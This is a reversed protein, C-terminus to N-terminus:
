SSKYKDATKRLELQKEKHKILQQVTEDFVTDIVKYIEPGEKKVIVEFHPGHIRLSCVHFPHPRVIDVTIDLFVPEQLNNLFKDMRGTIVDDIYNRLSDSKDAERDDIGRITITKNM